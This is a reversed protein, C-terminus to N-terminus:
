QSNKMANETVQQPVAAAWPWTQKTVLSINIGLTAVGADLGDVEPEAGHFGLTAANARDWSPLNSQLFQYAAAYTVNVPM